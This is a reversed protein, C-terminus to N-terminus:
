DQHWALKGGVKPKKVIAGDELLVVEKSGLLQRAMGAIVPNADIKWFRDDREWLNYLFPVSHPVKETETKEVTAVGAAATAAMEGEHSDVIPDTLEYQQSQRRGELHDDLAARAEEVQEDSLVRIPFLFGQDNYTAIEEPTLPETRVDSVAGEGRRRPAPRLGGTRHIGRRRLGLPDGPGRGPVYGHDPAPDEAPHLLHRRPETRSTPRRRDPHRPRERVDRGRRRRSPPPERADGRVRVDVPRVRDADCR